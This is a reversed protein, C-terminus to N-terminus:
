NRDAYFEHIKSIVFTQDDDSLSYSSPLSLGQSYIRDSVEFSRNLDAKNKYCPQLHLPYFFLRTEIGHEALYKALADRDDTLFSTFWFVPACRSDVCTPRFRKLGALERFYRDRIRAKKEIIRPLKGMQSVGIAAQMETFSFNFGIHEHVFIGKRDRGHNKLRYCLRSLREDNTLIVGGEGCTITKNGYYSLIGLEGFTGVHRGEFTVGIGQAADEITKLGHKRALKGLADMDAAQGYLHVPMIAKTKPTILAEAKGADLCFNDGAVDCFVPTAGSMIVANATAIFTMDPVIVEDGAGIDLAKLCCFLAMTGNTVAIAYKAGTLERTLAEFERTLEAEVVFTSAVVRKLQVLEEDDIWPQIQRITRSTTDM